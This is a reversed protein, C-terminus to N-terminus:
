KGGLPHAQSGILQSLQVLWAPEPLEDLTLKLWPLEITVMGSASSTVRATGPTATESTPSLPIFTTTHPARSKSSRVAMTTKRYFFASVDLQNERCYRSASFGCAAQKQIHELWEADTPKKMTIQESNKIM